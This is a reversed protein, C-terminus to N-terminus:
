ARGQLFAQVEARGPVGARGGFRTCKLAAVASAFRVAQREKMGEALCLAFAGHWVDGAGLTDVAEIPFAPQHAVAREELFYVGREGATVALWAGSRSALAELGAVPDAIGTVEALGQESFAVHTAFELAEPVTPLRDGDLVAPVGAQRALRFLHAAGEQWRTDGLVAKVGGPLRTPLWSPDLPLDPASYSLVLREGQADVFLPSTPPRRGDYRRALACDVGERELDAVIAEGTADRGLRTALAARGGLRAIAVAANAAIGGGVVALDRARYKQPHVPMVDVAYVFDLVAIGVCLVIPM